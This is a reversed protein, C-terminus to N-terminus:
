KTQAYDIDAGFAAEVTDIYGPLGDTFLQIRSGVWDRLDALFRIATELDQKGVAFMLALKSYADIAIWIYQDGVGLARGRPGAVGTVAGLSGAWRDGASVVAPVAAAKKGDHIGGQEVSSHIYGRFRTLEMSKM